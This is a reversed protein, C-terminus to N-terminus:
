VIQHHLLLFLSKSWWKYLFFFNIKVAVGDWDYLLRSFFMIKEFPRELETLGMYNLFFALSEFFWSFKSFIIPPPCVIDKDGEKWKKFLFILILILIQGKIHYWLVSKSKKKKQKFIFFPTIPVAFWGVHIVARFSQSTSVQICALLSLNPQVWIWWFNHRSSVNMGVQVM